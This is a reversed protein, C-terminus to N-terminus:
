NRELYLIPGNRQSADLILKGESHSLIYTHNNIDIFEQIASKPNEFRSGFDSYCSYRMLLDTKGDQKILLQNDKKFDYVIAQNAHLIEQTNISRQEQDSSEVVIERTLTWTGLIDGDNEHDENSCAVFILMSILLYIYKMRRM